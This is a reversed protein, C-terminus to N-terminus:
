RSQSSQAKLFAIVDKRAAADPVGGFFMKTGPFTASPAKLFKDLLAATWAGKASALARSYTYGTVKGIPRGVVGHLNPGMGNPQGAGTSHCVACRQFIVKGNKINQAHVPVSVSVLACVAAALFGSASRVSRSMQAHNMCFIAKKTFLTSIGPDPHPHKGAHEIRNCSSSLFKIPRAM